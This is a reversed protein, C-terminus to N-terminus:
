RSAQLVPIVETVSEAFNDMFKAFDDGNMYSLTNGTNTFTQKCKESTLTADLFARLSAVVDDPTGKLCGIGRFGGQIYDYGQEKLTAVEPLMEHRTEDMIGLAKISGDLIAGYAEGASMFAVDCHNGMLQTLQENSANNHLYSFQLNENTAFILPVQHHFTSHGPTSVIVRNEKAHKILDEITNFPSDPPVVVVEPDANFRALPIFDKYTYRVDSNLMPTTITSVTVPVLTYGDAPLTTVYTTGVVGGGGERCEVIISNGNLMAKDGSEVIARCTIDVGGGAAYPVVLTINKQPFDGAIATAFLALAFTATLLLTKKM